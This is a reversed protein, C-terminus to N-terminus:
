SFTFVEAESGTERFTQLFFSDPTPVPLRRLFDGKESLQGSVSAVRLCSNSGNERKLQNFVISKLSNPFILDAHM